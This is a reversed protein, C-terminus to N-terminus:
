EGREEIEEDETLQKVRLVRTEAYEAAAELSRKLERPVSPDGLLKRVASSNAQAVADWKGIPELLERLRAVDWRRVRKQARREAVYGSSEVREAECRDLYDHILQQAAAKRESAEKEATSAEVYQGLAAAIDIELDEPEVPARFLDCHSRFACWDCHPGPDPEFEALDIRAITELIESRTEELFEASQITQMQHDHLLFFLTTTVDFGPYLADAAMRYIALQANREVVEQPPMRRSTKYDIVELKKEPLVDVRDIRGHLKHEGPLAISFRLETAATRRNGNAGSYKAHHSQILQVGQEFYARRRPEPVQAERGRWSRLFAAVVEDLEPMELQGPDYMRNLADHVAAGFHLEPGVPVAIKDVYQLRYLHPCRCYAAFQSYSIRMARNGKERGKALPTASM